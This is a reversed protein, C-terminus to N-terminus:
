KAEVGMEALKQVALEKVDTPPEAQVVRQLVPVAAEKGQQAHVTVYARGAYAFLSSDAEAAKRFAEADPSVQAAKDFLPGAFEDLVPLSEPRAMRELGAFAERKLVPTAKSRIVKEYLGQAAAADTGEAAVASALVLEAAHRSGWPSGKEIAELLLDTAPAEGAAEAAALRVEASSSQKGTEVAKGVAASKRAALIELLAAQTAPDAKAFSDALMADAQPSTEKVLLPLVIFRAGPRNLAAVALPVFEEPAITTNKLNVLAAAVLYDEQGNEALRKLMRVARQPDGNVAATIRANDLRILDEPATVDDRKVVKGPGVGLRALADICAWKVEPPGAKAASTLAEVASTAKREGLATAIGAAIAPPAAPLAAILAQTAGEGPMDQLTMCADEALRPARLAEAVAPAEADGGCLALLRLAVLPVPLPYVADLLKTLEAAVAAKEADAGPRCAYDVINDLAQEASKVVEGDSSPLLKGAVPAVAAAGAPGAGKWASARVDASPDSLGKVLADVDAAGAVACMLLAAITLGLGKRM